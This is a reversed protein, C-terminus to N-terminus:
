YPLVVPNPLCITSVIVNKKLAVLPGNVELYEKYSHLAHCNPCVFYKKMNTHM